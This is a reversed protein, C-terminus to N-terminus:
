ATKLGLNARVEKLNNTAKVKREIAWELQKQATALAERARVIDDEAYKVGNKAGNLDFFKRQTKTMNNWSYQTTDFIPKDLANVFDFKQLEQYNAFRKTRYGFLGFHVYFCPYDVKIDIERNTNKNRITFRGDCKYVEYGANEVMKFMAPAGKKFQTTAVVRIADNLNRTYEADTIDYANKM